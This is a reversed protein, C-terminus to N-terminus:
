IFFLPIRLLELAGLVSNLLLKAHQKSGFIGLPGSYSVNEVSYISTSFSVCSIGRLMVATTDRFLRFLHSKKSLFFRFLNSLM